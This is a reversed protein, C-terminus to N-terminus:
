GDLGLLRRAEDRHGEAVFAGLLVEVAFWLQATEVQMRLVEIRDARLEEVLPSLAEDRSQQELSPVSFSFATMGGVPATPTFCPGAHDKGCQPCIVVAQATM